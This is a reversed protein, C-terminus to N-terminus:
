IPANDSGSVDFPFIKWLLFHFELNLREYNANTKLFIFLQLCIYTFIYLFIKDM